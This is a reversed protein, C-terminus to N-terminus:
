LNPIAAGMKPFLKYGGPKYSRVELNCKLCFKDVQVFAVEQWWQRILCLPNQCLQLWLADSKYLLHKSCRETTESQAQLRETGKGMALGYLRCHTSWSCFKQLQQPNIYLLENMWTRVVYGQRVSGPVISSNFSLLLKEVTTLFLDYEVDLILEM